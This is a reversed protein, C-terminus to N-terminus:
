QVLMQQRKEIAVLAADRVPSEPLNIMEQLLKLTQEGSANAMVEAARMRAEQHDERAIHTFSDSLLDVICLADATAIAELRQALVPHRLADRVRDIAGGDVMMVVRGLRRRSRPRLSDFRHLMADAHLPSLVQRVGRVLSPEEHDLMSILNSLLKANPDADIADQDGDAVPVAARMWFDVDPTECHSLGIAAAAVCGPGGFRVVSTILNLTELSDENAAIYLHVLAARLSPDLDGVLDEGGHCSKPMGMDRLNRSVTGSSETGVKALLADRMGADSRVQILELLRPALNRRRIFGALLHIVDSDTSSSWRACLLDMTPGNEQVIARLDGDGWTSIMLFADVLLENRHMSFRKISDVLRALIPGRVSPQDREDRADRGLPKVLDHVARSAAARTARSSHSEALLILDIAAATINLQHAADIADALEVFHNPRSQVSESAGADTAEQGRLVDLIVPKIWATRSRLLAVNAPGIQKWHAMLARPSREDTRRSLADISAERISPSSDGLGLVLVDVAACNETTALTEYTSPHVSM